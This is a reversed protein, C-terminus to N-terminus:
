EIWGVTCVYLLKESCNLPSWHGWVGYNMRICVKEGKETNTPTVFWRHFDLESFDTYDYETSDEDKKLGIWVPLMEESNERFLMCLVRNYEELNHISVLHGGYHYMCCQEARDYDYLSHGMRMCKRDNLRIWEKGREDTGCPKPQYKAACSAKIADRIDAQAPSDMLNLLVLVLVASTCKM